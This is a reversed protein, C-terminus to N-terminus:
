KIKELRQKAAVNDADRSLINQYVQRASQKDDKQEYAIGLLLEIQANNPLAGLAQKYTEIADDPKDLNYLQVNALNIYPNIASKNKEISKKYSEVAKDYNKQDRYVNGLNNYATADNGNIKVSEEYQKVAENLNGTAYLAVAYNKRAVSDNPKEEVAKSLEPLKEKYEESVYGAQPKAEEAKFMKPVFIIAAVVIAVIVVLAIIIQVLSLKRFFGAIRKGFVGLRLGHSRSNNRNKQEM